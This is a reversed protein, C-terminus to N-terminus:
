YGNIDSIVPFITPNEVYCLGRSSGCMTSIVLYHQRLFTGVIALPIEHLEWQSGAPNVLTNLDLLCM